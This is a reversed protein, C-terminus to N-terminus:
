SKRMESLKYNKYELYKNQIEIENSIMNLNNILNDELIKFYIIVKDIKENLVNINRTKYLDKTNRFYDKIIDINDSLNRYVEGLESRILIMQEKDFFLNNVTEESKLENPTKEIPSVDFEIIKDKIRKENENIINSLDTISSKQELYKKCENDISIIIKDIILKTNNNKTNIYNFQNKIQNYNNLIKNIEDKLTVDFNEKYQIVDYSSYLKVILNIISILEEIEVYFKENAIKEKLLVKKLYKSKPSNWVSFLKNSIFYYEKQNNKIIGLQAIMKNKLESLEITFVRM